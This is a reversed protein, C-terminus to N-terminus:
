DRFNTFQVPVNLGEDKILKMAAQLDDRKKGTIRVQEDQMASQIKMKAQKILKIIKRGNDADIGQQVSINLIAKGNTEKIEGELLCGIDIRRKVMKNHLIDIMQKIQFESETTLILEKEKIDIRANAGKFDFRASIERNSQDVANSLEHKDVESVVDFSPMLIEKVLFRCTLTM